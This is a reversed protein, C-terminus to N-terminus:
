GSREAGRSAGFRLDFSSAYANDEVQEHSAALDVIQKLGATADMFEFSLADTFHSALTPRAFVFARGSLEIRFDEELEPTILKLEGDRTLDFTNLGSCAGGGPPCSVGLDVDSEWM